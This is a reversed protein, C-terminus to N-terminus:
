GKSTARLGNVYQCKEASMFDANWIGKIASRVDTFTKTPKIHALMVACSKYAGSIYKKGVSFGLPNLEAVTAVVGGEAKLDFIECKGELVGALIAMDAASGSVRVSNRKVGNTYQYIM